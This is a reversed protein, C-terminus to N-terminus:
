KPTVKRTLVKTRVKGDLKVKVAWRLTSSLIGRADPPFTIYDRFTGKFPWNKIPRPEPKSPGYDIPHISGLPDILSATVTAKLPRGKLDTVTISYHWKVNVKPNAAPAKLTVKWGARRSRSPSSRLVAAGRPGDAAARHFRVDAFRTQSSRMHRPRRPPLLARARGLDLPADLLPGGDCLEVILGRERVVLQAAAIDVSRAPRLSCVADVRGAALHCLSLALSGMVRLREAVGVLSPAQEAVLQTKTAELSLLEITDKPLLRSSRRATSRQATM